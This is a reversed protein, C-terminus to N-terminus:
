IKENIDWDPALDEEKWKIGVWAWWKKDGRQGEEFNLARLESNMQAIRAKGEYTRLGKEQLWNNLKDRFEYKFIFDEQNYTIECFEDIFTELPSSLKLYLEKNKEMTKHHTFIFNRKILNQLTRLVKYLLAEYEESDAEAVKVELEPNEKFVKPFEILFLRRYFAETTDTSRPIENTLFILKAYNQFKIPERYKRDKELYDGGCLQKLLGTNKIEEYELEGCVNALKQYLRSGSFRDRQIEGLTVHSINDQGLLREIIRAFLGKGNSGRGYLIFFKQYPYGRYLCYALLEYLTITEEEPLFSEILPIILKSKAEPSYNWPLKWTFFDEKQYDRLFGGKLDYVGNQLPILNVPPEPLPKGKWSSQKIDIVVEDIVYRKKMDENLEKINERLEIAIKEEGDERWLGEAEDFWYLPERGGQWWFEFNNRIDPSFLRPYFKNYFVVQPQNQEERKPKFELWDSVKKLIEEPIYNKLTPYGTVKKGDEIKRLTIQIQGLRTRTEEDQTLICLAKIFDEIEEESWRNLGLWGTLALFTDQRVGRGPYNRALLVCSALKAVARKLLNFPIARPEGEKDWIYIDGEPHISPPFVTQFAGGDRGTSRIECITTDKFQFKIYVSDLCYYLWHSRPRTERGFIADTSPLFYDAVQIAEKCDLDIDTLWKSYKGLKVGINQGNNFYEPLEQETIKLKDWEKILPTKTGKPMPVVEWGKALYERAKEQTTM